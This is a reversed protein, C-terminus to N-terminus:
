HILKEIKFNGKQYASPLLEDLAKNLSVIKIMKDLNFLKRSKKLLLIDMKM